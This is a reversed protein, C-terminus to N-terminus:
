QRAPDTGLLAVTTVVDGHPDDFVLEVTGDPQVTAGLGSGLAPTYRSTETGTANVEDIWSPNDSGDTYHRTLTKTTTAGDTTTEVLRRGQDDQTFATTITGQTITRTADSDFYGLTIDGAAPMPTDAAPLVTTRGLVDYSYVGVGDGATKVRSSLDYTWSSTSVTGTGCDGTADALTVTKSTRNGQKDFVYAREVCGDEGTFDQATTLRSARDYRYSRSLANDVDAITGVPAYENVVRGALDYERSWTLWAGPTAADLGTVEDTVVGHYTQSTLQGTTDYTFHQEIGGPAKQVIMAAQDDYAATYTGVGSVVMTTVLGRQETNGLADDGDYTYTVTGKPDTVTKVMGAGALGPAVYTTTTVDGLSNTASIERSWRDQTVSSSAVVAGGVISENGIVTGTASNYLTKSKPEATSSALGVVVTESTSPRGDNLFTSTSTRTVTGSTEVVIEAALYRNYKTITSDPLDVGVPDSAPGSWCSLGAWEPKNRCAARPSGNGATYDINRTTAEDGGASLPARSELVGGTSDFLSKTTIDLGASAMDTTQTTAVGLRWGSADGDIASSDIPDHGSRSVSLNELDAPIADLPNWSGSTASAAGATVTTVLGYRKRTIPDIGAHPAGQDYTYQVHPRVWETAGDAMVANRAPAWADTVYQGAATDVTVTAGGITVTRSDAANYRTISAYSNVDFIVGPDTTLRQTIDAIARNDFTRVVNGTTDYDTASLQWAGAGYEATNVTYGAADTYQISAYTWDEASLTGSIVRDPGFVAAGYTPAAAQDWRAVSLPSVDPQGTAPVAPTLGYVYTAITSTPEAATSGERKVTELAFSNAASYEFIFAATDANKQKTLRTSDTSVAYEYTSGLDSRPDTVSALRKNAFYTYEAVVIPAMSQAPVADPNYAVFAISKVQGAIDGPTSTATTTTAYTITLARCGAVLTTACDVLTNACGPTAVSDCTVLVPAPALIRTVRGQADTVYNTTGQQGPERVSVPLWRLPGTASDIDWTTVTGDLETLTLIRSTGTGTVKLEGELFATDEDVPEYIGAPALLRGEGTQRFVLPDGEENVLAITGDVTTNDVVEYAAAGSGSGDFSATWGPGFVSNTDSTGSSPGSYTSHSRSISLGGEPTPVTVDTESTNFEGTWLAVQGPGADSVPFGGGFAHPVRLVTIPNAEDATCKKGGPEYTFCVQVELLVPVRDNLTVSVGSSADILAYETRWIQNQVLVPDSGPAPVTTLEGNPEGTAAATAVNWDNSSSGAVRWELTATVDATGSPPAIASIRVRDTTKFGTQPSSLTASGFGFSYTSEKIAGSAAVTQTKISHPGSTNAVTVPVTIAAGGVVATTSPTGGDIAISVAVPANFATSAAVQVTCTVPAAPLADNWSDAGYPSPCTVTAADPATTSVRFKLMPSWVAQTITPDSSQARVWYNQEDPLADAASLQCPAETGSAVAASQCSKVLTAPTAVAASHIEYTIRTASGEPDTSKATFTPRQSSTTVVGAPAQSPSILTVTPTTPYRNYTVSLSPKNSTANASNFRKWAANATESARLGYGVVSASTSAQKQALATVPISVYGAACSSNYGKAGSVSTYYGATTYISPQSAWRVAATPAGSVYVTMSAATCSWSHFNYLKLTASTVAAGKWGSNSFALYSRAKTTGGNYTGVQLEVHNGYDTTPFDSRVFTDFTPAGTFPPDIIIPYTLNPDQLFASDPTLVLERVGGKGVDLDMALETINEPLGSGRNESSDWMYPADITGVYRNKSDTFDIAGDAQEVVKLGAAGLPIRLEVEADLAPKEKLVFFQEFGTATLEVVLDTAPLVDEYTAKAGELVPEPLAEGWGFQVEKGRVGTTTVLGNAQVEAASAEGSLAIPVYGSKPGVTGDAKVELTYDLDRWGSDQEGDAVRIPGASEDTTFTGDPNAWTTAKETRESLVEVRFGQSRAAIQASVVDPASMKAPDPVVPANAVQPSAQAFPTDGAVVLTAVLVFTLAMALRLSLWAGRRGFFFSLVILGWYARVGM